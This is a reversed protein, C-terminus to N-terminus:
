LGGMGIRAATVFQAELWERRLRFLDYAERLQLRRKRLAVKGLMKAILFAISSAICILLLGNTWTM